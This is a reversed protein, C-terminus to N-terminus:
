RSTSPSALLRSQVAPPTGHAYRACAIHQLAKASAAGHARLAHPTPGALANLARASLKKSGPHLNIVFAGIAVYGMHSAWAPKAMTGHAVAAWAAYGLAYCQYPM